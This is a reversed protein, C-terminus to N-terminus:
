AAPSVNVYRRIPAEYELDLYRTRAASAFADGAGPYQRLISAAAIIDGRVLHDAYERLTENSPM